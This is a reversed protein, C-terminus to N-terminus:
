KKMDRESPYETVSRSTDMKIKQAFGSLRNDFALIGQMLSAGLRRLREPTIYEPEFGSHEYTTELTLATVNSKFNAWWWSEPYSDEVFTTGGETPNPKILWKGNAKGYFQRVQDIYHLSNRWLKEQVSNYGQAQTGFHPFFFAPENPATQTGHLNLAMFFPASSQSLERMKKNLVQNEVPSNKSLKMPNSPERLWTNELNESRRNLRYNGARIGDVNHMPVINFIFHKLATNEDANGREALWDLIGEIVFSSSTEAAHSRAQIWIRKKSAAPYSPDTVTIMEIPQKGVPSLGITQREFFGDDALEPFQNLLVQYYDDFTQKTYPYFRALWVTPRTFVKSVQTTFVSRQANDTVLSSQIQQGSFRQWHLNDYSFLPTYPFSWGPNLASFTDKIEVQYDVDNAVNELKVYWWNRWKPTNTLSNDHNDNRLVISLKQQDIEVSNPQGMNGSAFDDRVVNNFELRCSSM